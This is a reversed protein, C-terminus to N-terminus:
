RDIGIRELEKQLWQSWMKFHNINAGPKFDVFVGMNKMTHAFDVLTQRAEYETIDTEIYNM